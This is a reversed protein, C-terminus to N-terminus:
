IVKGTLIVYAIIVASIVIILISPIIIVSFFARLKSIKQYKSVGIVQLSLVHIFLILNLLIVITIYVLNQLNWVINELDFAGKFFLLVFLIGIFAIAAAYIQSVASSYSVPKYTNFYGQKGGFMLVGLHTVASSIFPAAFSFGIGFVLVFFFRIIGVIFDAGQLTYAGTVIDLIFKLVLAFSAIFVYFFMIGSYGKEKEVDKFFLKPHYFLKKLRACYREKM